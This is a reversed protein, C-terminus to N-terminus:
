PQTIQRELEAAQRTLEAASERMKDATRRLQDRRQTEQHVEALTQFPHRGDSDALWADSDIVKVGAHDQLWEDALYHDGHRVLKGDLYVGTWEGFRHFEIEGLPKEASM